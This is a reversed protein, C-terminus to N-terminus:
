RVYIWIRGNVPIDTTNTEGVEGTGDCNKTNTYASQWIKYEPIEDVIGIIRDPYQIIEERTMIDATGDPAACVADGVKYNNRNQYPHVLVRGAVGIPTKAVDSMGVSCGFTDSIVRAAPQLRETARVLKGSGNSVLVRGGETEDSERYEAFDNWVANYVKSGYIPALGGNGNGFRWGNIVAVKGEAFAWGQWLDNASAMNGNRAYRIENTAVCNQYTATNSNGTCSGSTSSTNAYDVRCQYSGARFYWRSDGQVNWVARIINGESYGYPSNSTNVGLLHSTYNASNANGSISIGWTGSAGSGTKTVTYSTYNGSDLITNWAQWTQTHNTANGGGSSGRVSMHGGNSWSIM